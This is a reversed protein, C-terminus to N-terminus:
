SVSTFHGIDFKFKSLFTTESIGNEIKRYYIYKVSKKQVWGVGSLQSWQGSMYVVDTQKGPDHDLSTWGPILSWLKHPLKGCLNTCSSAPSDPYCCWWQRNVSRFFFLYWPNFSKTNLLSNLCFEGRGVSQAQCSSEGRGNGLCVCQMPNGRSDTKTWTDGIRYSRKTKPDNCRDLQSILSILRWRFDLRTKTQPYKYKSRSTCSIRGNGEGLCTCDLMMWGQYPREWTEGVLFSSSAYGDYCREAALNFLLATTLCLHPVFRTFCKM